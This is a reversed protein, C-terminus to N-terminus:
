DRFVCLGFNFRSLAPYKVYPRKTALRTFVTLECGVRSSQPRSKEETRVSQAPPRTVPMLRVIMERVPSRQSIGTLGAEARAPPSGYAVRM